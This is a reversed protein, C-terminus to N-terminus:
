PLQLFDDSYTFIHSLFISIFSKFTKCIWIENKIEMLFLEGSIQKSFVVKCCIRFRQCSSPETLCFNFSLLNFSLRALDSNKNGIFRQADKFTLCVLCFVTNWYGDLPNLLTKISMKFQIQLNDIYWWTYKKEWLNERIKM